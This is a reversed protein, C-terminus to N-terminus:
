YRALGLFSRVEIPNTSCPKNIIAEVMQPDVGIGEILVIHGLCAAKEFWFECKSFQCIHHDLTFRLHKTDDELNKSYVLINDIFVVM